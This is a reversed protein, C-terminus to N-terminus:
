VMFIPILGYSMSAVSANVGGSVYILGGGGKYYYVSRIWANAYNNPNLTANSAYTHPWLMRSTNVNAYYAYQMQYNQEYENARTRSGMIEFEAPLPLYDITSTISSSSNNGNGKNDSWKTIPKMVARLEAPLCSMLTNPVPNTACTETPNYGTASTTKANGYGSPAVNTSGLIDYRIDSAKWGGYDEGCWHNFTFIKRGSKDSTKHSCTIARDRNKETVSRKFGSFHIGTGERASNHNFGLIFVFLTMDIALEGINGKLYVPKCDGVSMYNAATGATSMESIEAWTYPIGIETWSATYSANATATTITPQWADFAYGAKDPPVIGVPKEGAKVEETGLVTVGDSDYYTIIYYLAEEWMATYTADGTVTTVAPNWGLFNYGEKEFTYADPTTGYPLKLSKLQSGDDDLYTITYTQLTASFTAYVTKDETINKLINADYAGDANGWGLYTYYYQVTSAKTPTSILGKAVVDVCDDGYAVAKKYLTQSGNKFTVYRVDASTGGMGAIAVWAYSGNAFLKSTGTGGVEFTADDQCRILFNSTTTDIGATSSTSSFAVSADGMLAKYSTIFSSSFKQKMGWAALMPSGAFFTAADDGDIGSETDGDGDYDYLGYATAYVLVLDPMEGLGHSITKRTNDTVGNIKFTGAAIKLTGTGSTGGGTGGSNVVISAIANAFENPKLTGSSGTKSRIANAINQFLEGLVNAM